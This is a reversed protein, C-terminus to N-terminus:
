VDVNELKVKKQNNYMEVIEKTTNVDDVSKDSRIFGVARPFRLAYGVGNEAGCTHTPSKTIEDAKVSIVYKPYVWVDPSILSEVRAPKNDVKIEDLLKRLQKFEDETFGSGVKAITEFVDKDENYVGVLLAGIGLETRAGKGFFYGLIVVDITDELQSKYSRKLKIWNFNRAGASYPANLNKAVIGELGNTVVEDFFKQLESPNDTILIRSRQIKGEEGFVSELIKRRESYPKDILIQDELLLIDFVFLRLPLKSAVEEVNHKRKRQITIQFPYLTDTNEDYALAESDFVIRKYPLKKVEEVVDVMFHTIDELNRSFIKVNDGDKHVQSRFGDFKEDVACKGLRSIIEEASPLREALAPRVPNMPMLTIKNVGELGSKYLEEAVMGLDSVLNFAREIKEKGERNGLKAVSLAEMITSEGVGLRLRGQTFRVIYKSELKSSKNLLNALMNIKLLNSGEGSTKAIKMLESYVQVVELESDEKKNLEFAIEGLDGKEKYKSNLEEESVFFAKSIAKLTMKDAMGIQVGYFPPLLMEQLFYVVPRIEEVSSNKFAESLIQFMELRKTTNELREFYKALEKFKM